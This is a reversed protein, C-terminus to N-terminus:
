LLCQTHTNSINMTTNTVVDDEQNFDVKIHMNHEVITVTSTHRIHEDNDSCRVTPQNTDLAHMM